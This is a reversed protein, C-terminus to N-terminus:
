STLRTIKMFVCIKNQVSVLYKCCSVQTPIIVKKLFISNKLVVTGTISDVANQRTLFIIFLKHYFSSFVWMGCRRVLELIM